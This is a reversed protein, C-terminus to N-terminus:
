RRGTDTGGTFLRRVGSAAVWAIALAGAGVVALFVAELV